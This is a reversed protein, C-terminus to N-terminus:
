VIDFPLPPPPELALRDFDDPPFGAAQRARLRAMRLVQVDQDPCDEDRMTRFMGSTFWQIAQALDGHAEYAEGVYVYVQPDRPREAKIQGALRAAEDVAGVKLLGDLLACRADPTCAGGDAVARRYLDLARDHDEDLAWLEGAMVLLQAASAEDDPQPDAALEEFWQATAPLDGRESSSLHRHVADATIADRAM